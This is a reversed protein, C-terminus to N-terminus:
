DRTIKFITFKGKGKKHHYYLTKGNGGITPGESFGKVASITQPVGFSEDISNRKAVFIAFTMSANAVGTLSGTARTFFLELGDNSIAPAYEWAKTNINKMIEESNKALVFKGGKKHAVMIKMERPKRNFFSSVFYLTNGDHSIEPGMAIAGSGIDANALVVKVDTVKGDEFRGSHIMSKNKTAGQQSMYFFMNQDDMTAVGEILETNVGDVFGKYKFSNDGVKKAYHLNANVGPANILNNFFLYQGDRSIFPEMMDDDYGIIEVKVSNKFGEYGAGAQEPVFEAEGSKIQELLSNAEEIKIEAEEIKGQKVLPPVQKMLSIVPRPDKGSKHLKKIDRQLKKLKGRVQFAGTKSSKAGMAVATFDGFDAPVVNFITLSLFAIILYYTKVRTFMTEKLFRSYIDRIVRLVSNKKVINDYFIEYTM